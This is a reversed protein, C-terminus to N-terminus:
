QLGHWLLAKTTHESPVSATIVRETALLVAGSAARFQSSSIPSLGPAAALELGPTQASVAARLRPCLPYGGCPVSAAM